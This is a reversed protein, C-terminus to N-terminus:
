SRHPLVAAVQELSRPVRRPRSGDLRPRPGAACGLSRSSPTPPQSTVFQRGAGSAAETSVAGLAQQSSGGSRCYEQAFYRSGTAADRLSAGWPPGPTLRTYSQPMCRV